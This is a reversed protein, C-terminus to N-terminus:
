SVSDARRVLAPFSLNLTATEDIRVEIQDLSSVIWDAQQLEEARHSTVVALVRCGAANAASIGAPADEIVLCDEPRRSLLAAGKLYCEPAPKGHAVMDGAVVQRPTSIGAAALRGRMMKESASTVVTWRYPPLSALLERAGPYANIECQEEEALADLEALHTQLAAHDLAPFHNRITDVARRGHAQRLDFLKGPLHRAAWRTWCREDGSTSSVLVGDMDFLLGGVAIEVAFTASQPRLAVVSSM